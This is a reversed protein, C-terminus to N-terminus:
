TLSRSPTDHADEHHPCACLKGTFKNNLRCEQHMRVRWMSLEVEHDPHRVMASELAQATECATSVYPRPVILALIEAPLQKRTSGPPPPTYEKTEGLLQGLATHLQAVLHRPCELPELLSPQPDDANNNNNNNNNEM